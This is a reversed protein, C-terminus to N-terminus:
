GLILQESLNWLRQREAPQRAAPAVRCLAPAGRLGGFQEPGYHEGGQASAATADTGEVVTTVKHGDATAEKTSEAAM